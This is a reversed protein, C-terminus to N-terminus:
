GKASAFWGSDFGSGTAGAFAFTQAAGFNSWQLISRVGAAKVEQLLEAFYPALTPDIAVNELTVWIAAPFYEFLEVEVGSSGLLINFLGIVDEITGSTRNLFIRAKLHLRYTGDDFGGRPEGIIRGIVDLQEGFSDDISSLTVLQGAADDAAQTSECIAALLALLNPSQKYQEIIKSLVIEYHTSPPPAAIPDYLGGLPSALPFGSVSSPM